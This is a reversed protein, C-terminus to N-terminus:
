CDGAFIFFQTFRCRDRITSPPPLLACLDMKPEFFVLPYVSDNGTRRVPRGRWHHFLIRAGVGGADRFPHRYFSLDGFSGERSSRNESGPLIIFRATKSSLAYDYCVLRFFLEYQSWM